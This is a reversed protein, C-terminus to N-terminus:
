INTKLLVVKLSILGAGHSSPANLGTFSFNTLVWLSIASPPGLM